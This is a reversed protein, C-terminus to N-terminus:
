ESSVHVTSANSSHEELRLQFSLTELAHGRCPVSIRLADAVGINLQNGCKWLRSLTCQMIISRLLKTITHQGYPRPNGNFMVAKGCSSSLVVPTHFTSNLQRLIYIRHSRFSCTWVFGVTSKKWWNVENDSPCCFHYWHTQCSNAVVVSAVVSLWHELDLYVWNWM